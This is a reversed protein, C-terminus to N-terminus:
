AELSETNGDTDPSAESKAATEAEAELEARYAAVEADIDLEPATKTQGSDYGAVIDQCLKLVAAQEEDNLCLVGEIIARQLASMDPHAASFADLASQPAATLMEGEGTRLWHESIGFTSCLLKLLPEKQEPNKLRNLEINVIVSESVGLKAAFEKRTFDFHKRVVKVREFIEM